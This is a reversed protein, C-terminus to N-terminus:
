SQLSNIQLFKGTFRKFSIEDTVTKTNRKTGHSQVEAHTKNITYHNYAFLPHIRYSMACVFLKGCFLSKDKNEKM